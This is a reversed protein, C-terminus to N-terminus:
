TRSYAHKVNKNYHGFLAGLVSLTGFVLLEEVTHDPLNFKLTYIASNCQKRFTRVLLRKFQEVKYQLKLLEKDNWEGLRKRRACEANLESYLVNVITMPPEEMWGACREIFVLWFHFYWIGMQVTREKWCEECDGRLLRDRSSQKLERKLFRIKLGPM